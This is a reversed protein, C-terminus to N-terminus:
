GYRPNIQAKVHGMSGTQPQCGTWSLPLPSNIVLMFLSVNKAGIIHGEFTLLVGKKGWAILLRTNKL